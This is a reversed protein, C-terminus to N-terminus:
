QFHDFSAYRNALPQGSGDVLALGPEAVVTGIRTVATGSAAAAAAVAARQGPPATFALEYDDGGSLTCRRALEADL